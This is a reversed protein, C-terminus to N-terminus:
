RAKRAVLILAAWAWLYIVVIAMPLYIEFGLLWGSQLFIHIRM